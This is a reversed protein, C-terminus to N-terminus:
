NQNASVSLRRLELDKTLYYGSSVISRIECKFSQNSSLFYNETFFVKKVGFLKQVFINILVIMRDAHMLHSLIM